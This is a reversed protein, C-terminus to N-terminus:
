SQNKDNQYREYGSHSFLYTHFLRIYCSLKNNLVFCPTAVKQRRPLPLFDDRLFHNKLFIEQHRLSGNQNHLYSGQSLETSLIHLFSSTSKRYHFLIITSNNVIKKKQSPLHGQSFFLLWHGSLSPRLSVLMCHDTPVEPLIRGILLDRKLFCGILWQFTTVVKLILNNGIRVQASSWEILGGCWHFLLAGQPPSLKRVM